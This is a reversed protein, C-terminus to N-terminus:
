PVSAKVSAATARAPHFAEDTFLYIGRSESTALMGDPVFCCAELHQHTFKTAWPKQRAVRPIQGDIHYVFAGYKSVVGLLSGDESLCAGTVPSDIRLRAVFELVFPETQATLPFRYLGARQDNFVKSIVYGYGQWVFLSECDFPEKPFLLQWGRTAAVSTASSKPDPEDLQYVAIHSRQANNNGIDGIFLHHDADISIDEWDHLLVNTVHFETVFRGERTIGYLVQKKFGGGDKHTWFVGPYQRSAVIGSSETIRPNTIRGLQQVRPVAQQENRASGEPSEAVGVSATLCVLALLFLQKQSANM